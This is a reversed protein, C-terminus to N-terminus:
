TTPFNEIRTKDSSNLFLLLQNDNNEKNQGCVNTVLQSSNIFFSFLPLFTFVSLFRPSPQAQLPLVLVSATFSLHLPILHDCVCCGVGLVTFSRCLVSKANTNPQIFRNTIKSLKAACQIHQMAKSVTTYVFLSSYHEVATKTNLLMSDTTATRYHLLIKRCRAFLMVNCCQEAPMPKRFLSSRFSRM